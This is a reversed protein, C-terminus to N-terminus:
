ITAFHAIKIRMKNILFQLPTLLEHLQSSGPNLEPLRQKCGQSTLSSVAVGVRLLDRRRRRVGETVPFSAWSKQSQRVKLPTPPLCPLGAAEELKLRSPADTRFSRWPAM